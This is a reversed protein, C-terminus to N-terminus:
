SNGASLRYYYKTNASLDIHSYSLTNGTFLHYWVNNGSSWELKYVSAGASANWAVNIQSNNIATATFTTPPTPATTVSYVNSWDYSGGAGVACIRYYYTTNATRGSHMMTITPASVAGASSWGSIGNSSWEVNYSIADTVASWKIEIENQNLATLQINTPVSPPLVVGGQYEYCGLDVVDNKIRPNDELDTLLQNGNADVAYLNNGANIAPSGSKLRVDFNGNNWATNLTAAIEKPQWIGTVGALQTPVTQPNYNAFVNNTLMMSTLNNSGTHNATINDEAPTGNFSKWNGLSICNRVDFYNTNNSVISSSNANWSVNNVFTCNYIKTPTGSSQRIAVTGGRDSSVTLDIVVCNLFLSNSI